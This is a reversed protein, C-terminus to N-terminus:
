NDTFRLRTTCQFQFADSTAQNGITVLLLTGTAVAGIVGTTASYTTKAGKLPVYWDLESVTPSQAYSSTATTSTGGLTQKWDRLVTFRERNDLNTNSVSSSATLIQAITPITGSNSQSDWVLMIRCYTPVTTTDIPAINGHVRISQNFIQRGQRNNIDDGQAILNLATVSGTTDINYTAAALDLAHLEGAVYKSKYATRHTIFTTKRRNASLLKAQMRGTPTRASSKAKLNRSM